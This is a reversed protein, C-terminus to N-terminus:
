GDRKELRYRLQLSRILKYLQEESLQSIHAEEKEIALLEALRRYAQRRKMHGEQWIPDFLAHAQKRLVRINKNALFGKPIKTGRHCGVFAKCSPCLWIYGYDNRYPYMKHKHNLCIPTEHCYPCHKTFHLERETPVRGVAM